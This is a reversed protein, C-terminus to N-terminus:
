YATPVDLFAAGHRSDVRGHYFCVQFDKCTIELRMNDRKMRDYERSIAEAEQSKENV